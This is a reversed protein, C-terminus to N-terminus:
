AGAGADCRGIRVRVRRSICPTADTPPVVVFVADVVVIVVIIHLTCLPKTPCRTRYTEQQTIIRLERSRLRQTLKIDYQPWLANHPHSQKYVQSTLMKQYCVIYIVLISENNIRSSLPIHFFMSIATMKITSPQLSHQM